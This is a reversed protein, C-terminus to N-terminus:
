LLGTLFLMVAVQICILRMGVKHISLFSVIKEYYNQFKRKTIQLSDIVKLM